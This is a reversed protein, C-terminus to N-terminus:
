ASVAIKVAQDVKGHKPRARGESDEYEEFEKSEDLEESELSNEYELNVTHLMFQRVLRALDPRRILLSTLNRLQRNGQLTEEQITISHYLHPITFVYLQSSSRALSYLTAQSEINDVVRTLIETPLDILSMPM